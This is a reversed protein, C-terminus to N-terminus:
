AGTSCPLANSSAMPPHVLRANRVSAVFDSKSKSSDAGCASYACCNAVNASPPAFAFGRLGCPSLAVRLMRFDTFIPVHSKM